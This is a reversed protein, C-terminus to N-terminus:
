ERADETGPQGADEPCDEEVEESGEEPEEVETYEAEVTEDMKRQYVGLEEDLDTGLPAKDVVNANLLRKVREKIASELAEPSNYNINIESRDTFLGVDSHKGLLEIARLEYKVEGCDAIELLKNTLASRVQNADFALSQGYERIFSSVGLATPLNSLPGTEKNKIVADILEKEQAFTKDDVEVPAGLEELLEATNTAIVLEDEFTKPEQDASDYPLPHDKSPEVTISKTKRKAM